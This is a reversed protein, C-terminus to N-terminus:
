GLKTLDLIRQKAINPIATLRSALDLDLFLKRLSRM